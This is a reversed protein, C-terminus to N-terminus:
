LYIRNKETGGEIGSLPSTDPIQLSCKFEITFFYIVQNFFPCLIQISLKGLFIFLHGTHRHFSTRVLSIHNLVVTLCRKVGVPIAIIFIVSLFLPTLFKSGEQVASPFTPLHSRHHSRHYLHYYHPHRKSWTQAIRFTQCNLPCKQASQYYM